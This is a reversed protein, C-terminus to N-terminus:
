KRFIFVVAMMICFFAAAYNWGIKEKLFFVSFLAFVTLSIVEQIIKLQAATFTGSLYGIRNAPVMLLYEFFALGWGILVAKWWPLDQNKLHGYWAYTMFVNSLFLLGITKM